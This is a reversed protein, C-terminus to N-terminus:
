LRSYLWISCIFSKSRLGQSNEHTTEVSQCKSTPFLIAYLAHHSGWQSYRADHYWSSATCIIWYPIILLDSYAIRSWDSTSFNIFENGYLFCHVFVDLSNQNCNAVLMSFCPGKEWGNKRRGTQSKGALVCVFVRACMCVSLTSNNLNLLALLYCYTTVFVFYRIWLM